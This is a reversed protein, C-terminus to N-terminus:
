SKPLRDCNAHGWGIQQKENDYIIMLDQMSIDGIVNLDRPLGAETGNLIGLCVNGKNTIILYNEPPIEMMAGRGNGFSLILSKFHKKVDLVSKFSKQGKWCLPLSKDDVEKLPKTSLDEKLASLFDQYLQFGFYTYSSGSDLVVLLRSGLSRTGWVLSALGPSYYNSDRIRIKSSWTIGSSPVLDDGLYLFGGGKSSLCQGVVNRIVGQLSLQSVISAKGFGLGLVGDTPM